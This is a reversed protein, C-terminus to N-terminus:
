HKHQLILDVICNINLYNSDEFDEDNELIIEFKKEIEVLLRIKGLSNLGLEFLDDEPNIDYNTIDLVDAVIHKVNEYLMEIKNKEM